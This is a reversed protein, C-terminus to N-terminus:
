QRAALARLLARGAAHLVPYPHYSRVSECWGRERRTVRDADYALQGVEGGIVEGHIAAHAPGPHHIPGAAASRIPPVAALAREHKLRPFGCSGIDMDTRRVRVHALMPGDDHEGLGVSAAGAAVPGDLDRPNRLDRARAHTGPAVRAHPRRPLRRLRQSRVSSCRSPWCRRPAGGRRIWGSPEIVM